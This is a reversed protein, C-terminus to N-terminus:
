NTNCSDTDGLACLRKKIMEIKDEMIHQKEKNKYLSLEIEKLSERTVGTGTPILSIIRDVTAFLRPLFLFFVLLIYFEKM